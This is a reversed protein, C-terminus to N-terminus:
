QQIFKKTTGDSMRVINIGKGLTSRQKGDTGYIAIITAATTTHHHKCIATAADLHAKIRTTIDTLLATTGNDGMSKTYNTSTTLLANLEKMLEDPVLTNTSYKNAETYAANYANYAAKQDESILLWDNQASKSDAASYSGDLNENFYKTYSKFMAKGSISFKYAGETTESPTLTMSSAGSQYKVAASGSGKWDVELNLRYGDKKNHESDNDVTGNQADRFYWIPANNIDTISAKSDNSIFNKCAVNYIYAAQDAATLKEGVWWDAASMPSNTNGSAEFTVVVPKHDSQDASEDVSYDIAKLQIGNAPNIYFIKDVVEGQMYGLDGVMLADSGLTPYVGQKCLEIWADKVTLRGTANLPNIFLNEIEDRTYRSNMDGMVIIPHGNTNNKIANTLQEWQSARAKIDDSSDGADMHMVYVDVFINGEFTVCYFRFGKDILEDNDQDLWGNAKNWSTCKEDAMTYVNNCFFNLGDTDFKPMGSSVGGRWTGIHYAEALPTTLQTNYDFDECVGILDYHKELLYNGIKTAGDAGKGDPNVSIGYIKAPLGDVNYSCVSFTKLVDQAKANHMSALSLCMIILWLFKASPTRFETKM